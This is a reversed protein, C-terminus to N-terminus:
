NHESDIVAQLNAKIQQEKLTLTLLPVKEYPDKLTNFFMGLSDYLKYKGDHAWILLLDNTGDKSLPHYYCYIWSRPTAPLGVMQNYFSVGDVPAYNLPVSIGAADALTPLFDTFDILSTNVSRAPIHGPWSIMLPVKTGFVNPSAKGGRIQKGNFRSVIDSPTGNDGAYIIITNEYLNWAKLSDTVQGVKKDMYAVMSPFFAPNSQDRKPDWAAFEPDSPTPSFPEHCLTIPFYVFFNKSSNQRIFDLARNTFIDDGYKNRTASQSLYAGGEYVVPNKYHSGMASDLTQYPNWISYDDFGLSHISADGGDFQWKGAVYTAYGADHFLTGLTKENPNMIGWATYNRYNYKGTMILFRSPSCLPATFCQTFRMGNAAIKDINPTQYSSGGDSTPIEYGIDDGLILVINPRTLVPKNIASESVKAVLPKLESAKNCSFLTIALVTVFALCCQKFHIPTILFMNILKAIILIRIM